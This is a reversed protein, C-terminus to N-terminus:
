YLSWSTPGWTGARELARMNDELTGRAELQELQADAKISFNAEVTGYTVRYRANVLCRKAFIEKAVIHLRSGRERLLRETKAFCGLRRVLKLGASCVAPFDNANEAKALDALESEM